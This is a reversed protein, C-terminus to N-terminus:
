ADQPGRRFWVSRDSWDHAMLATGLLAIFVGTTGHHLRQRGVWVRRRVSDYHVLGLAYNKDATSM